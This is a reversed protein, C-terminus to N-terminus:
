VGIYKNKWTITPAGIVTGTNRVYINNTMAGGTVYLSFFTGSVFANNIPIGYETITKSGFKTNVMVTGGPLGNTSLMLNHDSPVDGVGTWIMNDGILLYKGSEGGAIPITLIFGTQSDGTNLASTVYDSTSYQQWNIGNYSTQPYQSTYSCVSCFIGRSDSWCVSQWKLSNAGTRLTWTIGDPSTQMSPTGALSIACFLGTGNATPSWCISIWTAAGSQGTRLTWTIGDPSTGISNYSGVACFLGTGNATPSWCVSYGDAGWGTRLTWTIGDPSTVVKRSPGVACFLGTGNATPSWCVSNWSNGITRQTWTIGDPSTFALESNGVACFLGTGNATPSWCVSTGYAGTRATWTIGDPSTQVTAGGPPGVACFLGTGNATPSWCVSYWIGSVGPSVQTFTGTQVAGYWFPDPCSFVIQVKQFESYTKNPITVSMPVCDIFRDFTVGDSAYALQGLYTNYGSSTLSTDPVFGTGVASFIREIQRIITTRQAVKTASNGIINIACEITITRSPYLTRILSGGQQFPANQIQPTLQPIGIGEVSTLLLHYNPETGDSITVTGDLGSFPASNAITYKFARM